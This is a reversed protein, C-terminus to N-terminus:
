AGGRACRSLPATGAPTGRTSRTSANAIRNGGRIPAATSTAPRSARRERSARAATSRDTPASRTPTATICTAPAWTYATPRRSGTVCPRRASCRGDERRPLLLQRLDFRRRRRRGDHVLRRAAQRARGVPTLALMGKPKAPESRVVPKFNVKVLKDAFDQAKLFDLLGSFSDASSEDFNGGISIRTKGVVNRINEVIRDFTGQGGRLPRMRDHTQKDGDLTIKAGRLGYPVLRDVIEPTLLLGNTIISMSQKVGRAQTARWTREAMDYMVPLNLLPEGGFFTIVLTEPKLRDLEDEIWAAVRASTELTMKEAFQNFDERDGQYCYGCAFNCQLTTLLTIHLESSSHKVSHFYADLAARDARADAM